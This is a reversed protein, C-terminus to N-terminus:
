WGGRRGGRGRGAGGPVRHRFFPASDFWFVIAALLTTPRDSVIVADGAETRSM